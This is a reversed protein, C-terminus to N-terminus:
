ITYDMCWNSLRLIQQPYKPYKDELKRVERQGFNEYIGSIKAKAILKKKINAIETDITM